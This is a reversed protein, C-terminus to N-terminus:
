ADKVQNLFLVFLDPRVEVEKGWWHVTEQGSRLAVELGRRTEELDGLQADEPEGSGDEEESRAVVGHVREDTAQHPRWDEPRPGDHKRWSFKISAFVGPESLASLHGETAGAREFDLCRLPTNCARTKSLNFFDSLLRPAPTLVVPARAAATKAGEPKPGLLARRENTPSTSALSAMPQLVIPPSPAWLPSAPWTVVQILSSTGAILLLGVLPALNSLNARAKTDKVLCAM